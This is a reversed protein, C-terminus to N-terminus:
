VGRRKLPTVNDAPAVIREILAALAEYAKQKETFYEHRDYFPASAAL